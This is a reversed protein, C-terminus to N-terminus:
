AAFELLQLPQSAVAMPTMGHPNIPPGCVLCYASEM